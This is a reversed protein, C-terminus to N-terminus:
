KNFNIVEMKIYSDKLFKLINIIIDNPLYEKEKKLWELMLLSEKDQRIIKLDNIFRFPIYIIHGIHPKIYNDTVYFSSLLINPIKTVQVGLCSVLSSNFKDQCYEPNSICIGRIQFTKKLINYKVLVDKGKIENYDMNKEFM